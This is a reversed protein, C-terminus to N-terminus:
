QKIFYKCIWVFSFGGLKNILNHFQQHTTEARSRKMEVENIASASLSQLYGCEKLHKIEDDVNKEEMHLRVEKQYKEWLELPMYEKLFDISYYIDLFTIYNVGNFAIRRLEDQSFSKFIDSTFMPMADVSYNLAVIENIEDEKEAAMYRKIYDMDKMYTYSKDLGISTSYILIIKRLRNLKRAILLRDYLSKIMLGLLVGALIGEFNIKSIDISM